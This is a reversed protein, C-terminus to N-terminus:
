QKTTTEKVDLEALMKRRYAVEQQAEKLRQRRSQPDDGTGRHGAKPDRVLDACYDRWKEAERLNEGYAARCDPWGAVALLQRQLELVKPYAM